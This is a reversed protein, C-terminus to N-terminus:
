PQPVVTTKENSGKCNSEEARWSQELLRQEIIRNRPPSHSSSVLASMGLDGLSNERCVHRGEALYQKVSGSRSIDTDSEKPVCFLCAM